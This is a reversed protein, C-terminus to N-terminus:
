VGLCSKRRNCGACDATINKIFRGAQISAMIEPATEQMAQIMPLNRPTELVTGTKMHHYWVESPKKGNYECTYYANMQDDFMLQSDSPCRAGSKLDDFVFSGDPKQMVIDIFGLMPVDGMTYNAEHELAVVPYPLGQELSSELMDKFYAKFADKRAAHDRNKLAKTAGYAFDRAKVPALQGDKSLELYAKQARSYGLDDELGHALLEGDWLMEFLELSDEITGANDVTWTTRWGGEPAKPTGYAVMFAAHLVSGAWRHHTTKDEPVKDIRALKFYWSCFNWDRVASVSLRTPLKPPSEM